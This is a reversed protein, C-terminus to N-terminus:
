FIYSYSGWQSPSIHSRTDGDHNYSYNYESVNITGDSNVAEVIAVHGHPDGSYSSRWSIIAGVRPTQSVSYGQNIALTPWNRADGTGTSGDGRYWSKGLKENWYWAAYGTCESMYFSWKDAIYVGPPVKYPYGLSGLTGGSPSSRRQAYIQASIQSVEGQIKSVMDLYSQQQQITMGLLKDKQSKQVQIGKQYSVQQSQLDNLDNQKNVLDTKQRELDNKVSEAQTHVSKVQIEIASVYNSENTNLGLSTGSLLLDFNSRSSFRYIEVVANNLKKKLVALEQNKQDISKSLDDIQTSTSTIQGGTQDIKQQTTTIDGNLNDIQGSLTKAQAAKNQAAAQNADLEQQKQQLQKQLDTTTSACAFQIPSAILLLLTMLKILSSRNM